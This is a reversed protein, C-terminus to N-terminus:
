EQGRRRMIRRYRLVLLVGGILGLIFGAASVARWSQPTDPFGFTLVLWAVAWALTGITIATIGSDDRTRLRPDLRVRDIASVEPQTGDEPHAHPDQDGM